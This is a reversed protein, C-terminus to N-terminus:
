KFSNEADINEGQEQLMKLIEELAKRKCVNDFVYIDMEIQKKKKEEEEGEQDDDEWSALVDAFDVAEVNGNEEEKIAMELKDIAEQLHEQKWGFFTVEHLFATMVAYINKHTYENEAVLSGLLEGAPSFAYAYVKCEVGENLLEEEYILEAREREGYHNYSFVIKTEKTDIIELSLLYEIADAINKRVQDIWGDISLTRYKLPIDCLNNFYQYIYTNILKEKDSEVLWEQITKM